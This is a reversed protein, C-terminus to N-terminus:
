KVGIIKYLFEDVSILSENQKFTIYACNGEQRLLNKEGEEIIIFNESCDKIPLNPFEKECSSNKPCANQIRQSVQKFNMYVEYTADSEESYIYIPKDAYDNLKKLENQVIVNSSFPSTRFGFTYSGLKLLYYNNQLVFEYENYKIKQVGEKERGYFAYGATSLLMLSVLIIGIILNNRRQKKEQGEKSIIKKM